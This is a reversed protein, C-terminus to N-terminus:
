DLRAFYGTKHRISVGPKKCRIQIKRFTGDGPGATSGYALDYSSRLIDGIQQFADRLTKAEGADFELGGTERAMREMVGRGYKNRANWVGKRVETYRLCFITCGTRQAAEITEMMNRASANDEGDSFVLLARRGGAKALLEEAGYYIADYFATGLERQEVPGVRPFTAKSKRDQYEKLNDTIQEIRNTPASVLRLNNGFCLLFAQDRSQLTTKLFEELNRRHEKLYDRQSGSSDAILGISLPTNGGASFHSITQRAGDEFVEFDDKTLGKVLKGATDRVSFPLNVLNVEVRIQFLLLRFLERRLM